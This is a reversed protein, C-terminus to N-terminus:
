GKRFLRSFGRAAKPEGAHKAGGTVEAHEAELALDIAGVGSQDSIQRVADHEITADQGGALGQRDAAMAKIIAIKCREGILREHLTGIERQFDATIARMQVDIGAMAEEAGRVRSAEISTLVPDPGGPAWQAGPSRVAGGSTMQRIIELVDGSHQSDGM